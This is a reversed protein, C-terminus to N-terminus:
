NQPFLQQKMEKLRRRTKEREEPSELEPEFSKIRNEEVRSEEIRALSTSLVYKRNRTLYLLKKEKQYQTPRSRRSDLWNNDHWDTIVVVGNEFPIVLEKAILIKVDDDTGGHIRLIKKTSVFGEDDAEIGLLFYLAKSSLPLDMFKDTDIIAKDFM